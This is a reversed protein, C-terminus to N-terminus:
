KPFLRRRQQFGHGAVPRRTVVLISRLGGPREAHSRFWRPAVRPPDHRRRVSALHSPFRDAPWGSVVQALRDSGPDVTLRRVESSGIIKVYIDFNDAKEGNWAFAVQDGDPSFTPRDGYRAHLHALGIVTVLDRLTPVAM